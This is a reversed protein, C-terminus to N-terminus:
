RSVAARCGPAALAPIRGAARPCGDGPPATHDAPVYAARAKMIGLFTVIANIGKPVVVGVRDGPTVGAAVLFGAVRDACDDLERYTISWGSPDVIAERMAFRRASSELYDVLSAIEPTNM